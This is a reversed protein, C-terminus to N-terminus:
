EISARLASVVPPVAVPLIDKVVADAEDPLVPESLMLEIAGTDTVLRVAVIVQVVFTAAVEWTSMPVADGLSFAVASVEVRWSLWETGSM